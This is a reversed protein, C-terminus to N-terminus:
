GSRAVIRRPGHRDRETTEGGEDPVPEENSGGSGAPHKPRHQNGGATEEQEKGAKVGVQTVMGKPQGEQAVERETAHHLSPGPMEPYM